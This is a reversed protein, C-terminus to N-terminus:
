LGSAEVAELLAQTGGGTDEQELTRLVWNLRQVHQRLFSQLQRLQDERTGTGLNPLPFEYSM